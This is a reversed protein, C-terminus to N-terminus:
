TIWDKIDKDMDENFGIKAFILDNALSGGNIVKSVVRYGQSAMYSVLESQSGRKDFEGIHKFEVSLTRIDVQSWPITQLIQLEHGEVDLSFYDVRAVKVAKLIAYLPLCLVNVLRNGRKDPSSNVIRGLNFFSGYTVAMTRQETALCHPVVYAKRQRKKIKPISKPDGEILIGEWGLDRELSLTNSRTEGDLAGCEVFFGRTSPSDLRYPVSGAEPVLIHDRKILQHLIPDQQSMGNVVKTVKPEPDLGVVELQEVTVNSWKVVGKFKLSAFHRLSPPSMDHGAYKIAQPPNRLFHQVGIDLAKNWHLWSTTINPITKSLGVFGLSLTQQCYAELLCLTSTEGKLRSGPFSTM